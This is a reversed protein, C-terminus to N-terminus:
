DRRGVRQQRPVQQRDVTVTTGRRSSEPTVEVVPEPILVDVVGVREEDDKVEVRYEGIKLSRSVLSTGPDLRFTASFNGATDPRLSDSTDCDM